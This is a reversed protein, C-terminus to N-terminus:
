FRFFSGESSGIKKGVKFIFFLFFKFGTLVGAVVMGVFGGRFFFKERILVVGSFDFIIDVWFGM